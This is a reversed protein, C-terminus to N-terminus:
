DFLDFQAALQRQRRGFRFSDLLECHYRGHGSLVEKKRRRDARPGAACVYVTGDESDFM